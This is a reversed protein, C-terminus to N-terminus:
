QNTSCHASAVVPDVVVILHSVMCLASANAFITAWQSRVQDSLALINQRHEHNTYASDTFDQSREIAAELSFVIQEEISTTFSGIRILDLLEQIRRLFNGITPCTDLQEHLWRLTSEVALVFSGGPVSRQARHLQGRRQYKPVNCHVQEVRKNGGTIVVPDRDYAIAKLHNRYDHGYLLADNHPDFHLHLSSTTSSASSPRAYYHHPLPVASSWAIGEFAMPQPSKSSAVIGEKVVFHILDMARRMQAFVTDRNQRASECEPHRLCAKSTTLLMITSRDLTRRAAAMQARRKEDKVDQKLSALVLKNNM